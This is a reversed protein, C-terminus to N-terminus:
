LEGGMFRPKFAALEEILQPITPAGPYGAERWLRYNEAVDRTALTRDVAEPAAVPDIRVDGRGLCRRMLVLLDGKAITDAPLVHQSGQAPPGSRMIGCCLRAFALTTIGNWRHNVFGRVTANPPQLRFWDLLSVHSRAELGVASCRLNFFVPSTVEGLSKTKGYVDLADHPDTELYSGRTGAWVCDTAIQLVRSGVQEAARALIHPFLSNVRIAREVEGANDDHIYQKIFGIANVVWDFGVLLSGLGRESCQEADLHVWRCWPWRQQWVAPDERVTGVVDLGGDRALVDAVMAGLMGTGGLV